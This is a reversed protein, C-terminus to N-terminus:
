EEKDQIKSKVNDIMDSTEVELTTTNGMHPNVFTQM